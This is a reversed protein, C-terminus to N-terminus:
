CIIQFIKKQHTAFVAALPAGRRLVDIASWYYPWWPFDPLCHTSGKFANLIEELSFM